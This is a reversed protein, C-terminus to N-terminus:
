GGAKAPAKADAAPAKADHAPAKADADPAKAFTGIMTSFSEGWVAMTKTPGVAKFYYPDGSGEVIAALMRQDADNHKDDAGPRVAAIYTGSIDVLTTTLGDAETKTTTSIDEITKGEPPKFMGKWRTLNAEIGGAGGAFRFVVLEGDGGPGPLTFQAVRMKNAPPSSEWETPAAFVLGPVTQASTEGSPTIDRPPGKPKPAAMPPMGAHPGAGAHPGKPQGAKADGHPNKAHGAKADGAKADGAKKAASKAPVPDKATSNDCAGVLALSLWLPLTTRRGTMLGRISSCWPIQNWAQPHTPPVARTTVSPPPM